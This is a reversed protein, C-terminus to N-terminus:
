VYRNKRSTETTMDQVAFASSANKNQISLHFAEEELINKFINEHCVEFSSRLVPPLFQSFGVSTERNRPTLTVGYNVPPEYRTVSSIEEACDELFLATIKGSPTIILADRDITLDAHAPGAFDLGTIAHKYDRCVRITNLTRTMEPQEPM